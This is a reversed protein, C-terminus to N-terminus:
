RDVDDSVGGEDRDPPGTPASPAVPAVPAPFVAAPPPVIVVPKAKGCCASGASALGPGRGMLWLLVLLLALVIAVVVHWRTWVSHQARTRGNILRTM